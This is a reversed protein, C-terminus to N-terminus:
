SAKSSLRVVETRILVVPAESAGGYGQTIILQSGLGKTIIM